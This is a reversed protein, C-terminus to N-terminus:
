SAPAEMLSFGEALFGLAAPFRPRRPSVRTDGRLPALPQPVRVRPTEVRGQAHLPQLALCLGPM